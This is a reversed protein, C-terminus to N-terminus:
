CPQIEVAGASWGIFSVSYHVGESDEFAVQWEMGPPAQPVSVCALNLEHELPAADPAGASRLERAIADRAAALVAPFRQQLEAFFERQAPSAGTKPCDVLVEVSRQLPEFSANGEWYPGRDYFQTFRFVPDEPVPVKELGLSRLLRRIM